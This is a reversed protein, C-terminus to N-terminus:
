FQIISIECRMTCNLELETQNCKTTCERDDTAFTTELPPVNQPRKISKLGDVSEKDLMRNNIFELLILNTSKNFAGVAISELFFNNIIIIREFSSGCFQNESIEILSTNIIYLSYFKESINSFRNLGIETINDGVCSISHNEHREIFCECGTTNINLDDCFKDSKVFSIAILQFVVFGKCSINILCLIIFM